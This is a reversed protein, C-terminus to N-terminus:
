QTASPFNKQVQEKARIAECDKKAAETQDFHEQLEEYTMNHINFPAQCDKMMHRLKQCKYCKVPPRHEQTRDIDMANLDKQEVRNDQHPVM